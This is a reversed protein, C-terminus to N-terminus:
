VTNGAGQSLQRSGGNPSPRSPDNIADLEALIEARDADLAPPDRRVSVPSESLRLPSRVVSVRSDGDKVSIISGLAVVQENSVVGDIGLVPACIVRESQLRSICEAVSLDKLREGLIAVLEARHRDRDRLTAYRDDDLLDEAGIAVCFRTWMHENVAAVAILGDQVRVVQNPLGM